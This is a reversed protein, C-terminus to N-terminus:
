EVYDGKLEICKNSRTELKEIGELFFDAPLDAFFEETSRIVDDTSAFRTGKLHKKLKPFLHYDSPALDPSYPPHDLLTFALEKLKALTVNATHPSANDQLFLIGKSLKGRRKAKIEDRLKTLLSTYYEKNVTKGYELYDIMIIGICDWFVSAMVKEKSRVQRFKKHRPSGAHRWQMSQQKTEPDYCFLWTEDMTVIRDLFNAKNDRFYKIIGRCAKVCTKKQEDSLCKLVWKASLKKMGLETHIINHMREYSINLEKEITGISIRRNQLILEHVAVVNEPTTVERPRVPRADDEIGFDGRKFKAVWSKVTSYSPCDDRMTQQM